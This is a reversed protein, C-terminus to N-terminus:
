QALSDAIKLLETLSLIDSPMNTQLMFNYGDESWVLQNWREYDWEGQQDQFPIIPVQELWVGPQGRVTVDVIPVDGVGMEWPQADSSVLTQDIAIIGAMQLGNHLPPDLEIRYSMDATISSKTILVDRSSLRYGLPIYMPEYVPFGAKASAHTITLLGAVVPQCDTCVWNPDVTPTPTGSQLTAVYKEADSSEDTIIFNGIRRIIDQAFARGQPTIFTLALLAVIILLAFAVRSIRRPQTTNMKEGQKGAVLSAKVAPWLEIQSSPIKEELADQLISQINKNDM